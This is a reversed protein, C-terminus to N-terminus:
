AAGRKESSSSNILGTLKEIQSDTLPPADAVLADIRRDLAEEANLGALRYVDALRFHVTGGVNFSPLKGTRRYYDVKKLNVKLIGAAQKKDFSPELNRPDAEAPYRM